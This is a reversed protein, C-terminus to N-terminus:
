EEFMERNKRLMEDIWKEHEEQAKIRRPLSEYIRREISNLGGPILDTSRANAQGYPKTTRGIKKKENM